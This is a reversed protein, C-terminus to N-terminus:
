SVANQACSFPHVYLDTMNLVRVASNFWVKNVAVITMTLCTISCTYKNTFQQAQEEGLRYNTAESRKLRRCGLSHIVRM